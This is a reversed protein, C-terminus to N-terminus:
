GCEERLRKSSGKREVSSGFAFDFVSATTSTNHAAIAVELWSKPWWGKIPIERAGDIQKRTPVWFKYHSRYNFGVLMNEDEGPAFIPEKRCEINLQDFAEVLLGDNADSLKALFSTYRALADIADWNLTAIEIALEERISKYAVANHHFGIETWPLVTVNDIFLLLKACASYCRNSVIVKSRNRIMLRAIENGIHASGGLSDILVQNDGKLRLHEEAISLMQQNMEGCLFLVDDKLGSTCAPEAHEPEARALGPVLLAFLILAIFILPFRLPYTLM